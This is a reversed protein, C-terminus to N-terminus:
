FIDPLAPLDGTAQIQKLEQKSLKTEQTNLSIIGGDAGISLFNTQSDSFNFNSADTIVFAGGAVTDLEETSMEVLKDTDSM